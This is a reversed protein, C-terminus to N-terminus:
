RRVEYLERVPLGALIPGFKAIQEEFYGVRESALVDEETEWLSLILVKGEVSDALLSLHNFGHQQRAAPLVTEEIMRVAEDVKNPQVHMTTVRAYM